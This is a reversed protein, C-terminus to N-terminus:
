GIREAEALSANHGITLEGSQFTVFSNKRLISLIQDRCKFEDHIEIAIIRVRSLVTSIRREDEFVSREAGEIDMKLLDISEFDFQRRLTELTMGEVANQESERGPRLSFSWARGDRFKEAAVLREDAGWLGARVPTVTEGRSRDVNKKLLSFNESNPELVIIRASPFLKHFYLGTIGIYGGADVIVSAKRSPWQKKFLDLIPRYEKQLVVQIFIDADSSDRRALVEYTGLEPDGNYTILTHAPSVRKLTVGALMLSEFQGKAQILSEGAFIPLSFRRACLGFFLRIQEPPSFQAFVRLNRSFFNM